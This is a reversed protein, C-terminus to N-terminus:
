MTKRKGDLMACTDTISEAQIWECPGAYVYWIQKTSTLYSFYLITITQQNPKFNYIFCDSTTDEGIMQSLFNAHFIWKRETVVKDTFDIWVKHSKKKRWLKVTWVHHVENFIGGLMFLLHSLCFETNLWLFDCLIKKWSFYFHIKHAM